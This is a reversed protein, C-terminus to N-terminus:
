WTAGLNAISTGELRGPFCKNVGYDVSMHTPTYISDGRNSYTPSAKTVGTPMSDNGDFVCGSYTVSADLTHDTVDFVPASTTREVTVGEFKVNQAKHLTSSGVTTTKIIDNSSQRCIDGVILARNAIWRETTMESEGVRFFLYAGNSTSLRDVYNLASVGDCRGPNGGEPSGQLHLLRNFGYLTATNLRLNAFQLFDAAVRFTLSGNCDDLINNAVIWGQAKCGYIEEEGPRNYGTTKNHDFMGNIVTEFTPSNGLQGDQPQNSGDAVNRNFFDNHHGRMYRTTSAGESDPRVIYSQLDDQHNDFDNNHVTNYSGQDEICFARGGSSGNWTGNIDKFKNNRAVCWTTDTEFHILRDGNTTVQSANFYFGEFIVYACNVFRIRTTGALVAGGPTEPRMIIPSAATGQVNNIIILGDGSYTGDTLEIEQGAAAAEVDLHFQAWTTSITDATGYSTPPTVDWMLADRDPATYAASIDPILEYIEPVINTVSVGAPILFAGVYHGLVEDWNSSRFGAFSFTGPGFDLSYYDVTVDQVGSATLADPMSITGTNGTNTWTSLWSPRYTGHDNLTPHAYILTTAQDVDFSMTTDLNIHLAVTRLLQYNAYDNPVNGLTTQLDAHMVASSEFGSTGQDPLRPGKM